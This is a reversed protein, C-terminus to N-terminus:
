EAALTAGGLPVAGAGKRWNGFLYYLVALAGSSTSSAIFAWWIADAGFSPYLGFGVALRVGIVSILLIMFPALVAGNARVVSTMVMSIGMPVFTWGIMLNIHEGIAIAQSGLPLFLGLLYHDSVLLVAILLGTMLVNAGVGFGALKSIRDWRGAGINQAAMASVASGVAFAPMQIYNWLQQAANYAASTEVGQRNILGMMIVTSVAMIGTSLSMPLGITLIPKLHAWDPRLLHWEPGRLRIPLDLRYVRWIMFILCILNTVAGAIAAGPLGLAPIPGLGLIFVPNLLISFTLNLVTSWLPTVADGVGRLASQLLVTVFVLPLTLFVISLFSIAFPYAAPPTSLVRLLAPTALWGGLALFLSAILFAGLTAGTIRRVEAVDRRGMAQGIMITAAMALGFVSSFILFMMMNAIGAGAFASEGLFKGVYIASISGNLSQLVNSGLTPLAFLLLTKGVPGQTLDGRMPQQRATSAALDSDDLIPAETM